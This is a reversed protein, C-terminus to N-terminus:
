EGLQADPQDARVNVEGVHMPVSSVMVSVLTIKHEGSFTNKLITVRIRCKAAQTVQAEHTQVLTAHQNWHGEMATSDCRCGAVCEVSAAGMHQYSRLYGLSVTAKPKRGSGNSVPLRSDFELEAWDSVNFGTWGWKQAIFTQAAPREPRYAFGESAVVADKFSDQLKCVSTSSEVPVGAQLPPPLRAQGTGGATYGSCSRDRRLAEAQWPPGVEMRVLTDQMLGILLDAMAQHGTDSPHINDKYYYESARDAELVELDGAAHDVQFGSVNAHMLPYSAARVSLSPVDYYQGIFAASTEAPELYDFRGRTAEDLTPPLYCYHHLLVVAPRHPLALLKRLLQEYGRKVGSGLDSDGLFADNVTFEVVILDADEPVLQETCVAFLGSTAAPIAKNVMTHDAKPFSKQLWDFFLTPFASGWWSAGMGYTISGGITVVTSPQGALMRRAFRALMEGSGTFTQGRTLAHDPM